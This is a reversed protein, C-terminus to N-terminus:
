GAHILGIAADKEFIYLLARLAEGRESTLAQDRTLILHADDRATALLEAHHDPM